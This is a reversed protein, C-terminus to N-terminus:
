LARDERLNRQTKDQRAMFCPTTHKLILFFSAELKPVQPLGQEQMSSSAGSAKLNMSAAAELATGYMYAYVM